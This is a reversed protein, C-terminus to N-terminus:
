HQRTPHTNDVIFDRTKKKKEMEDLTHKQSCLLFLKMRSSVKKLQLSLKQHSLSPCGQDERSVKYEKAVVTLGM